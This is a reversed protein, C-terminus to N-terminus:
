SREPMGISGGLTRTSRMISCVCSGSPATRRRARERERTLVVADGVEVPRRLRMAGPPGGIRMPPPARARAASRRARGGVDDADVRRDVGTLDVGRGRVVRQGLADVLLDSHTRSPAPSRKSSELDVRPERDGLDGVVGGADGVHQALQELASGFSTSADGSVSIPDRPRSRRGAARAARASPSSAVVHDGAVLRTVEARENLM